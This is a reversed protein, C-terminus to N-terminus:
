SASPPTTLRPALPRLGAAALLADDEAPGANEVTLLREGYFISNAGAYLALLQAERGLQARGASLRVISRPLVLRATAVLRVLELPDLPPLAQLPTGPIRVLANLPVSDPHPRLRTLEELMGCRDDVTEGMGLIGGTCVRIGAAQVNRLTELREDFTRTTIIEPYYRRSTDLNHNYSDLGAAKLRRAQDGDLRGLSCCTEIGLAKVARVVELIREFTDGDTPGRGAAGMCFRTAGRERAARARALIAERDLTRDPVVHTRHRASQACYACDEPCAGTEVSLLSCLQIAGEPQTRRHVDRARDVLEFLPLDHIARIEPVTWDHRPLIDADIM